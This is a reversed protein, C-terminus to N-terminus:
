DHKAEGDLIARAYDIRAILEDDDKTIMRPSGFAEMSGLRKVDNRMKALNAEAAEARAALRVCERSLNVIVVETGKLEEVM